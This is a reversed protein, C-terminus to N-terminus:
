LTDGQEKSYVHILGTENAMQLKENLLTQYQDDRDEINRIFEIQFSM